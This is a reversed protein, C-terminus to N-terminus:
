RDNSGIARAVVIAAVDQAGAEKLMKAAESCTAGTTLIDDVLAVRAGRIDYGRRVRFSGRVNRFRSNPSLDKQPLTNRSRALVRRAVRVQLARGLHEAVVEASNTRRALRRMWHMPIPVLLDPAFQQIQERRQTSLLQAMSAAVSEGEPRKMRLVNQRLDEEYDGLSTVRDFWLRHRRCLPCDAASPATEVTESEAPSFRSLNAGCRGCTKRGAPACRRCCDVCLQAGGPDAELEVGCCTCRPPFLLNLGGRWCVVVFRRLGKDLRALRQEPRPSGDFTAVM